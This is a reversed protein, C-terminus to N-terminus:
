ASSVNSTVLAKEIVPAAAEIDGIDIQLILDASRQVAAVGKGAEVQDDAAGVLHRRSQRSIGTVGFGVTRRGRQLESTGIGRMGADDGSEEDGIWRQFLDHGAGHFAAQAAGFLEVDACESPLETNEAGVVAVVYQRNRAGDQLPEAIELVDTQGAALADLGFDIQLRGHQLEVGAVRQDVRSKEVRQLDAGITGKGVGVAVDLNNGAIPNGGDGSAPDLGPDVIGNGVCELDSAIPQKEATLIEDAVFGILRLLQRGIGDEVQMRGILDVLCKLKVRASLM